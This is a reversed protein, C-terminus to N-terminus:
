DIDLVYVEYLGDKAKILDVDEYLGQGWLESVLDIAEKYTLNGAIKRMRAEWKPNLAFM